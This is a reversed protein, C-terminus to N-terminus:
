TRQVKNMKFVYAFHPVIVVPKGSLDLKPKVPTVSKDTVGPMGNRSPIRCCKFMGM